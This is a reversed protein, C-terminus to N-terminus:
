HKNLRLRAYQENLRHARAWDRRNVALRWRWLIIQARLARLM